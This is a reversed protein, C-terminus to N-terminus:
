NPAKVADTAAACAQLAASVLVFVRDDGKGGAIEVFDTAGEIAIGSEGTVLKLGGDQAASLTFSGGDGELFCGIEAGTSKCIALGTYWEARDKLKIGFGLEINDETIPVGDPNAKAMDLEIAGVRQEPHAKLHESSYTRAYCPEGNAVGAFHSQFLSQDAAVAPTGLAFFAGAIAPRRLGRLIFKDLLMDDEGERNFPYPSVPM